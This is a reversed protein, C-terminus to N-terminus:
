LLICLALHFQLFAIQSREIALLLLELSGAFGQTSPSVIPWVNRSVARRYGWPSANTNQLGGARM